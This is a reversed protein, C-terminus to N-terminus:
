SRKASAPPDADESPNQRLQQLVRVLQAASSPRRTPDRHLLLAVLNDMRRTVEPRFSSVRPAEDEIKHLLLRYPDSETFPLRGTLMEFLVTGISYIDAQTSVNHSDIQEPAMYDPTGLTVDTGTMTQMRTSRAIGFDMIRLKGRRTMMINAPKIDRHIVHHDHAYSLAELVEVILDCAHSEKLPANAKIYQHLTQGDLYELVIFPPTSDDGHHVEFIRVIGPHHLSQGIEMERLFRATAEAEDLRHTHPVKLAYTDGYTDVVRYVSAM